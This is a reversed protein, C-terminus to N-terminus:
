VRLQQGAPCHKRMLKRTLWGQALPNSFGAQAEIDASFIHGLALRYFLDVLAQHTRRLMTGINETCFVVSKSDRHNGLTILEVHGLVKGINKRKKRLMLEALGHSRREVLLSV